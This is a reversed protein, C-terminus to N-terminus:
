VSQLEKLAISLLVFKQLSLMQESRSFDNVVFHKHQERSDLVQKNGILKLQTM